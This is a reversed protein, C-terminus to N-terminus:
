SFRVFSLGCWTDNSVAMSEPQLPPWLPFLALIHALGRGVSTLCVYARAKFKFPVLSLCCILNWPPLMESLSVINEWSVALITTEDPVQNLIETDFLTAQCPHVMLIVTPLLYSCSFLQQKNSLFSGGGWTGTRRLVAYGHVPSQKRHVPHGSKSLRGQM